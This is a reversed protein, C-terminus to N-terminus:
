VLTMWIFPFTKLLWVLSNGTVDLLPFLYMMIIYFCSDLAIRASTNFLFNDASCNAAVVFIWVCKLFLNILWLIRMM